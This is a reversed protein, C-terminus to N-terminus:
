VSGVVKNTFFFFFLCFVTCAVSVLSVCSEV